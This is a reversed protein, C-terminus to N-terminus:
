RWWRIRSAAWRRGGRSRPRQEATGHLEVVADVRPAGRAGEGVALALYSPQPLPEFLLRIARPRRTRCRSGCRGAAARSEDGVRRRPGPRPGPGAVAALPSAPRDRQAGTRAPFGQRRSVPAGPEAKRPATSGPLGGCGAAASEVEGVDQPQLRFFWGDHYPDSNVTEPADELAENVAIVTGAVPAYIDSAAKVSEVVGAEDGAALEAGPEPCNSSCWTVWRKRRTIASARRDGHRRGGGAGM